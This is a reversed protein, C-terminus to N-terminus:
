IQRTNKYGVLLAESNRLLEDEAEMLDALTDNNSLSFQADYYNYINLLIVFICSTIVFILGFFCPRYGPFLM